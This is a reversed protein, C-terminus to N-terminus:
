LEKTVEWVAKGSRLKLSEANRDSKMECWM